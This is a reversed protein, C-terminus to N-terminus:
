EGIHIMLSVISIVVFIIFSLGVIDRGEKGKGVSTRCLLGDNML